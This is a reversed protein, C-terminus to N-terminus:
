RLPYAQRTEELADEIASELRSQELIETARPHLEPIDISDGMIALSRQIMSHASYVLDDDDWKGDGYVELMFMAGILLERPDNM